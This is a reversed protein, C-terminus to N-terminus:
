ENLETLVLLGVPIVHDWPLAGNLDGALDTGAMSAQATWVGTM